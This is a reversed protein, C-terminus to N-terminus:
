TEDIQRILDEVAATRSVYRRIINEVSAESWGMIEAIVRNPINAKHFRTAANGRLDHFHLDRNKMNAAMKARNFAAQLGNKQWPREHTNTLVRTSRKPIRSLVDRLAGYLPIIATLKHGSKGTTIRIEKKGIHSWSLQVLDGLRLGTHAALDVAWAVEPLSTQKIRALDEDSWIIASRDASYLRKIGECPNGALKGDDVAYGLVASLVQLGYDATRPKKAWQNRWQRIKLRVEPKDFLVTRVKGFDIDIRDLWPSWNRRTSQALRLYPGARYSVIVSHFRDKDVARLSAYAENYSRIFEPSGPEGELRPGLPPGRWAYWYKGRGRKTVVCHVGKLDVKIM